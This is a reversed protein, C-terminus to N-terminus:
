VCPPPPTNVQRYNDETTREDKKHAPTLDALKLSTPFESKSKSENYINTIFPSIIDYNEMLCKLLSIIIHIPKRKDLSSIQKKTMSESDDTFNFKAEVKVNVKIMHISPHNEFKKIINFIEDIEPNIYYGTEFGVVKLNKVVNSFYKNFKEVVEADESIIEDGDLLTIKNNGFHQESFLPKVTKWFKKNDTILKLDLNNYYFTKEKRFLSTCYYRYTTYNARNEDNPLSTCYYRYTTYNARNEDNPLSTCYYRYTTYNARNEDNPLSTCYYRYTTYNARNEDNPLSTCYYRYTTYNARNEDNPNKLFINRLRSRTMVSKSLMKNM